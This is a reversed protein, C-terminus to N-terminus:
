LNGLSRHIYSIWLYIQGTDIVVDKKQNELYSLLYKLALDKLRRFNEEDGAMQYYDAASSYWYGASMLDKKLLSVSKNGLKEYLRGTELFNM